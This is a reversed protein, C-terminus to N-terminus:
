HVIIIDSLMTITIEILKFQNLCKLIFVAAIVIIQGSNIGTCYVFDYEGVVYLISQFTSMVFFIMFHFFHTWNFDVHAM